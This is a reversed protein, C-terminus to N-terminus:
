GIIIREKPYHISEKKPTGRIIFLFSIIGVRGIFMLIMIIIKGFTSLNATIGMSFGSTGFASTVEFLIEMLTFRPEIFSLLIVSIGCIITATTIVIYSKFVDEIDVEKKFVKITNKGQAYSFISLIVIAFTTTRIGGGVSSPSAGIFMLLCILLLTPTSFDSVDMTALGGNRTSVSQFLSYFFSEHWSKDAFFNKKEFLYIFATGIVVLLFYTLTTVKTFLSFRYKLDGKHRFYNRVEILVPYGIAGLVLLTINILQVYYDTAFPLLSKGTIDYGANTAASVSAFFGQLFAEQWTPFYNIFHIGLLITGILEIVIFAILINKVTDVVGSLSTANQDIMILRRERFGIKKGVLLWFFTGLAMVGIGGFQLIFAFIFTGPVSLTESLNITSLGTVSIASIATFLADIFSLEVGDKLTIPLTLLITSIIAAFFYFLVIIQSITLRETTKIIKKRM